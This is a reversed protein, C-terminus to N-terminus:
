ALALVRMIEETAYASSSINDSAFIPLGTLAGLRERIEDHISLPRGFLVARVRALARGFRTRPVSAAERAVLTREGSYIFYASHPREIRIRVDGPKSGRLTRKRGIAPSRTISAPRGEADREHTTAMDWADVM